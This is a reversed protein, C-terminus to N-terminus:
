RDRLDVKAIIRTDCLDRLDVMSIILAMMAIRNFCHNAHHFNVVSVLLRVAPKPWTRTKAFNESDHTM